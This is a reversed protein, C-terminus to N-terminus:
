RVRGMKNDFNSLALWLDSGKIRIDGTVVTAGGGLRNNSIADWLHRQQSGNIIMEGANVRALQQDGVRSGGEIIGGTAYSQLQAITSTMVALGAAVAAIWAWVGMKSSSASAQAFGLIIQGIAGLVLGAKAAASNQGLAQLSQGLAAIGAGMKVSSDAGSSFLDNLQTVTSMMSNMQESGFASFADQTQSAADENQQQMKENWAAVSSSGGAPPTYDNSGLGKLDSPKAMHERFKAISEYLSKEEKLKDIEADLKAILDTNNYSTAKRKKELTEIQQDYWEESNPVAPANKTTTTNKTTRTRPITTRTRPTTTKRAKPARSNSLPGLMKAASEEDAVSAEIGQQLEKSAQQEIYANRAKAGKQTWVDYSSGFNPYVTQIWGNRAATVRDNGSLQAKDGVKVSQGKLADQYKEQALAAKAAARARLVLARIVTPTNAVFASEADSIGDISLGLSDFQTKNKEIWDTKAHETRLSRYQTQLRYYLSITSGLSSAYKDNYTDSLKDLQKQQEQEEKSAGSTALAYTGLAAAGVIVLGTFDGLLAKGVAKTVNWAKSAATNATTAVTNAGMAATDTTTAAAAITSWISRLKMTLASDQNLATAIAQVGNLLGLAGQVKLIAQQVNENETGLLAMASTAVSGAGALASLAQTAATINFDDDAFRTMADEADGIADKVEGARQAIRLFVDSKDLGELNMQAMLDKIERMQRRLPKGSNNIREFRRSLDDLRQKTADAVGSVSQKVENFASKTNNKANIIVTLNNAM